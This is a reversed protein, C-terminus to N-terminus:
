RNEPEVYDWRIYDFISRETLFTYDVLRKTDLNRIGYENLSLRHELLYSRMRTNFEKSGTFYLIAFPYEHVQTFMLDIRRFGNKYRCIGMFKRAGNSLTEVIYGKNRLDDIFINYISTNM